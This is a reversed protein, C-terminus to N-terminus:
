TGPATPRDLRPYGAAAAMLWVGSLALVAGSVVVAALLTRRLRDAM